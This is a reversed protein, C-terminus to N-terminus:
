GEPPDARDEPPPAPRLAAVGVSGLGRVKRARMAVVTFRPDGRLAEATQEDVLVAGPRALSTLRSARNVTTGFVDGRLTLVPGTSVGIRLQVPAGDVLDEEAGAIVAQLGLAIQAGSGEDPATFLVEDGLTKVVRGGHAAVLDTAQSEFRGVLAALDDESLQRALRTFGVIDAFGVCQLPAEGVPQAAVRAVAASLERHWAYAM